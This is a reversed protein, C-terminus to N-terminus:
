SVFVYDNKCVYKSFHAKNKKEIIEIFYIKIIDVIIVNCSNFTNKFTDYCIKINMCVYKLIHALM